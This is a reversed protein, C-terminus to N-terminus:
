PEKPSQQTSQAAITPVAGWVISKFIEKPDRRAMSRLIDVSEPTGAGLLESLKMDTGPFRSVAKGVIYPAQYANGMAAVAAGRAVDSSATQPSEQSKGLGGRGRGAMEIAKMVNAAGAQAQAVAGPKATASAPNPASALLRGEAAGAISAMFNTRRASGPLGWWAQALKGPMKPDAWGGEGGIAQMQNDLTSRVLAPFAEPDQRNMQRAGTAIETGHLNKDDMLLTLIKSQPAQHEMDILSGKPGAIQGVLGRETPNVINTSLSQFTDRGAQPDNRYTDLYENFDDIAKRIQGIQRRKIGLDAVNPAALKTKAGSLIENLAEPNTEFKPPTGPTAAEELKLKKTLNAEIFEGAPTTSGLQQQLSQLHRQLRQVSLNSVNPVSFAFADRTAETRSSKEAELAKVAASQAAFSTDAPPQAPAMRDLLGQGAAQVDEGQNRLTKSMRVGAGPAQTLREQLALLPSQTPLAQAATLKIPQPLAAADAMNQKAQAFESDPIGSAAERIRGTGRPPFFQPAGGIIGGALGGIPGSGPVVAEALDAGAAASGGSVGGVRAALARSIKQPSSMAAGAAGTGIGALIDSTVNEGTSMRPMGVAKALIESPMTRPPANEDRGSLVDGMHVVTDGVFGPVGILMKRAAIGLPSNLAPGSSGEGPAPLGSPQMSPQDKAKGLYAFSGDENQRFVNGTEKEVFMANPMPAGAVKQQEALLINRASPDRTEALTRAIEAKNKERISAEYADSSAQEEPSFAGPRSNEWATAM